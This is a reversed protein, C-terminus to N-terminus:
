IAATPLPGLKMVAERVLTAARLLDELLREDIQLQGEYESLNRLKHGKDLM